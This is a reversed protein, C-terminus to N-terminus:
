PFRPEATASQEPRGPVSAEDTTRLDAATRSATANAAVQHPVSQPSTLAAACEIAAHQSAVHGGGADDVGSSAHQGVGANGAASVAVEVQRPAPAVETMTAEIGDIIGTARLAPVM